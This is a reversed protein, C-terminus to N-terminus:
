WGRYGRGWQHDYHGYGRAVYPGFSRAEYPRDGYFPGYHRVLPYPHHRPVIVVPPAVYEYTPPPLPYGYAVAPPYAYHEEVPPNAYYDPPPPQLQAQPPRTTPFDAATATGIALIGLGIAGITAAITNGMIKERSGLGALAVQM